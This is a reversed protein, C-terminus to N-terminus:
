TSNDLELRTSLEFRTSDIELTSISFNIRNRINFNNLRISKLLQIRFYFQIFLLKKFVCHKPLLLAYIYHM